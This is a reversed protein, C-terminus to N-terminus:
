ISTLSNLLSRHHYVTGVPSISASGAGLSCGSHALRKVHGGETDVWDAPSVTLCASLNSLGATSRGPATPVRPGSSTM